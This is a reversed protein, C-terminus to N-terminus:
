RPINKRLEATKNKDLRSDTSISSNVIYVNVGLENFIEVNEASVGSALGIPVQVADRLKKVKELPAAVGTRTGTTIIADAYPEVMWGAEAVDEGERLHKM